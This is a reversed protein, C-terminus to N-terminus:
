GQRKLPDLKWSSIVEVYFFLCFRPSSSKPASFPKDLYSSRYLFYVTQGTKVEIYVILVLHTHTSVSQNAASQVEPERM